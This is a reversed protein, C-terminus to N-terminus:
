WREFRCLQWSPQKIRGTPIGGDLVLIGKPCAGGPVVCNRTIDEVDDESPGDEDDSSFDDSDETSSDGNYKPNEHILALERGTVTHRPPSMDVDDTRSYYEEMRSYDVHHSQQVVQSSSGGAHGHYGDNSCGGDYYYNSWGVTGFDPIQSGSVYPHEYSTQTPQSPMSYDYSYPEDVQINEAEVFVSVDGLGMQMMRPISLLRDVDGDSSIHGLYYGTVVNGIGLQPYKYSMKVSWHSPNINMIEYVIGKLEAYNTGLSVYRM